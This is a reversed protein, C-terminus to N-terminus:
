ISYQVYAMQTEDPLAQKLLGLKECVTPLALLSFGTERQDWLYCLDHNGYCWLTDPFDQVFRIARDYTQRYLDLNLGQGWDDAIDMLCVATDAINARLLDAAREFMAPKLHVDPIVLVLM